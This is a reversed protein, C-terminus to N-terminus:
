ARLRIRSRGRESELGIPQMGQAPIALEASITMAVADHRLVNVLQRTRFSKGCSLIHIAELLSSKGSANVGQIINLAPSLRMDLDALNRVRSLQLRTLRM